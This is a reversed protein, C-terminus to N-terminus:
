SLVSGMRAFKDYRHDVLEQPGLPRLEELAKVVADKLLAAAQDWDGHAGGLPEPIM